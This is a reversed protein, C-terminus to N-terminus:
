GEMSYEEPMLAYNPSHNIFKSLNLNLSIKIDDTDKTIFINELRLYYFLRLDQDNLYKIFSTIQKIWRIILAEPFYNDKSAKLQASCKDIFTVGLINSVVKISVRLTNV